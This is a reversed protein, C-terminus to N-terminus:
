HPSPLCVAGLIELLYKRRQKTWRSVTENFVFAHWRGGQVVKGTGAFSRGDRRRVIPLEYLANLSVANRDAGDNSRSHRPNGPPLESEKSRWLFYAFFPSGPNTTKTAIFSRCFHGASSALSPPQPVRRVFLRQTHRTHFLTRRLCDEGVAGESV